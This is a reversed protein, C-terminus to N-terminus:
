VIDHDKTKEYWVYLDYAYKDTKELEHAVRDRIQLTTLAPQKRDNVWKEIEGALKRAKDENLGAAKIVRFIKESDFEETSGDRKIVNVM